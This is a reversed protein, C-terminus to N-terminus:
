CCRPGGYKAQLREEAFRRWAATSPEVGHWALYRAYAREDALERLIGLVVRRLERLRRM